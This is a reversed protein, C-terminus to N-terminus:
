FHTSISNGTRTQDDAERGISPRPPPGVTVKESDTISPKITLRVLYLCCGLAILVVVGKAIALDFAAAAPLMM